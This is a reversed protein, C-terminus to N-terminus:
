NINERSLQNPTQMNTSFRKNAIIEEKYKSVKSIPSIAKKITAIIRATATITLTM